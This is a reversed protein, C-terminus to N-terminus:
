PDEKGSQELTLLIKGSMYIAQARSSTKDLLKTYYIQFYPKPSPKPGPRAQSPDAKAGRLGPM